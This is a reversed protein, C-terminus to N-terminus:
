RRFKKNAVLFLFKFFYVFLFIIFRVSKQDLYREIYKLVPNTSQGIYALPGLSAMKEIKNTYEPMQSAMVYFITSGQM